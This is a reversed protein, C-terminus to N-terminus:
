AYELVGKEKESLSRPLLMLFEDVEKLKDVLEGPKNLAFNKVNICVTPMELFVNVKNEKRIVIVNGKRHVGNKFTWGNVKINTM